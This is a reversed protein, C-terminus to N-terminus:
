LDSIKQLSVYYPKAYLLITSPSFDPVDPTKDCRYITFHKVLHTLTMRIVLRAFNEGICNRSAVAFSYLRRDRSVGGSMFREPNFTEPDPFLDPSHHLHYIPLRVKSGKEMKFNRGDVHLVIDSNAYRDIRVAQPYMRLVEQIFASMYSDKENSGGSIVEQRLRDQIEQHVALTHCAHGLTGSTTEFAELFFHLMNAKVEDRTLGSGDEESRSKVLIDVLNSRSDDGPMDERLQLMREFLSIMYRTPGTPTITFQIYNLIFEPVFAFTLLKHLHVVTAAATMRRFENDAQYPDEDISFLVKSVIDFLLSKMADSMNVCSGDEQRSLHDALKNLCSQIGPELPRMRSRTFGPGLIKRARKWRDGNATLLGQKLMPHFFYNLNDSFISFHKVFIEDILIPDAVILVPSSAEVLGVLPGYKSVLEQEVDKVPKKLYPLLNGLLPLPIPGPISRRRWYLLQWM